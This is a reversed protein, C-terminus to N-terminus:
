QKLEELLEVGGPLVETKIFKELNDDNGILAEYRVSGLIM